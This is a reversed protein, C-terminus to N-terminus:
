NGSWTQADLKVKDIYICGYDPDYVRMIIELITTKLYLRDWVLARPDALLFQATRKLIKVRKWVAQHYLYILNISVKYVTLIFVASNRRHTNQRIVVQFFWLSNVVQFFGVKQTNFDSHWGQNRFIRIDPRTPFWFRVHEFRVRSRISCSFNRLTAGKKDGPDVKSIKGLLNFESRVSPRWKSLDPGLHTASAMGAAALASSLLVQPLHGLLYRPWLAIVSEFHSNTWNDLNPRVTMVFGVNEIPIHRRLLSPVQGFVRTAFGPFICFKALWLAMGYINGRKIVFKLSDKLYKRYVQVVQGEASFSAVMRINWVAESAINKAKNLINRYAFHFNM